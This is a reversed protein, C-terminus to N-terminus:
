VAGFFTASDRGGEAVTLHGFGALNPMTALLGATARVRSAAADVTPYPGALLSVRGGVDTAVLFLGRDGAPPRTSRTSRTM